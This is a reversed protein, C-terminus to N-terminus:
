EFLIEHEFNDWGYKQIAHAFHTSKGYGKGNRWRDNLSQCTIGIYVKGNVENVHRYVIFNKM